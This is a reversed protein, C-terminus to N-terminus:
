EAIGSITFDVEVTTWASFDDPSVVQPSYNKCIDLANGDADYLAGEASRGDASPENVWTNLINARTEKGDDSSTYPKSTMEVAKGDVRIENVTIVAGPFMTEGDPIMVAMFSLGGPICSTDNADGTTDFRFGNTDATVSVTYDGNGTIPVVGADYSLMSTNPDDNKGWYQIWWQGDVIALYAEGSKAAISDEFEVDNANAAVPVSSEPDSAESSSESSSSSKDSDGCSTLCGCIMASLLLCSILKKM